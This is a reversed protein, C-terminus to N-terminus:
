VDKRDMWTSVTAKTTLEANSAEEDKEQFVSEQDGLMIGPMQRCEEGSPIWHREELYCLGGQQEAAM